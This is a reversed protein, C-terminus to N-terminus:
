YFLGIATIKYEDESDLEFFYTNMKSYIFLSVRELTTRLNWSNTLTIYRQAMSDKAKM